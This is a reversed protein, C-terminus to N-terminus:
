IADLQKKCNPCINKAMPLVGKTNCHPCNKLNLQVSPEEPTMLSEDQQSSHDKKIAPTSPVDHDSENKSQDSDQQASCTINERPGSASRQNLQQKQYYRKEERKKEAKYSSYASYLGLLLGITIDAMTIGLGHVGCFYLSFSAVITGLVTMLVFALIAAIEKMTDGKM